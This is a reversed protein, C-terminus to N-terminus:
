LYCQRISRSIKILCYKALRKRTEKKLFNMLKKLVTIDQVKTLEEILHYKYIQIDM